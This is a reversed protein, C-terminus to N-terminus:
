ERPLGNIFRFRMQDAAFQAGFVDEVRWRVQSRVLGLGPLEVWILDGKSLTDDGRASFGGSSVNVLEVTRSRFFGDLVQVRRDSARRHGRVQTAPAASPRRVLAKM